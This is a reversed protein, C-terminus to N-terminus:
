TAAISPKQEYHNTIRDLWTPLDECAKKHQANIVKETVRGEHSAIVAFFDRGMNYVFFRVGPDDQTKGTIDIRGVNVTSELKGSYRKTTVIQAVHGDPLTVQNEARWENRFSKSATNPIITEM